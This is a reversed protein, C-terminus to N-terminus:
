IRSEQSALVLWDPNEWNAPIELRVLQYPSINGRRLQDVLVKSSHERVDAIFSRDGVSHRSVISDCHWQKKGEATNALVDMRYVFADILPAYQALERFTVIWEQDTPVIIHPEAISIAPITVLTSAGLAALGKFFGRRNM